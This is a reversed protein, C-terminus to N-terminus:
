FNYLRRKLDWMKKSKVIKIKTMYYLIVKLIVFVVLSLLFCKLWFLLDFSFDNVFTELMSMNKTMNVSLVVM